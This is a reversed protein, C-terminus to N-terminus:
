QSHVSKYITLLILSGFVMMLMGVGVCLGTRRCRDCDDGKHDHLDVDVFVASIACVFMTILLPFLFGLIM